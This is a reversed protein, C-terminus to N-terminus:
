SAPGQQAQHQKLRQYAIRLLDGMQAGKSYAAFGWHFALKYGKIPNESNWRNTLEQLREVAVQAQQVGVGTLLVVFEDGGYRILTDSGRFGKKLLEAFGELVRDGTSSRLLSNLSRFGDLDFMVLTLSLEPIREVWRLEKSVRQDLYQQKLLGTLPDILAIDSAGVQGALKRRAEFIQKRKQNGYVSFFSSGVICALCIAPLYWERWRFLGLNERLPPLLAILLAVGTALLLLLAAGRLKLEEGELAQMRRRLEEPKM